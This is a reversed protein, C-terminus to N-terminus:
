LRPTQPTLSVHATNQQRPEVDEFQGKGRQWRSPNQSDGSGGTLLGIHDKLRDDGSGVGHGVGVVGGGGVEGGGM